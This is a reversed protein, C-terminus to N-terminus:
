LPWAHRGIVPGGLPPTINSAAAGAQFVQGAGTEGRSTRGAQALLPSVSIILVFLFRRIEVKPKNM